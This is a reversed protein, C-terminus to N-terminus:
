SRKRKSARYQLPCLEFHQLMDKGTYKTLAPSSTLAATVICLIFTLDNRAASVEGATIIFEELSGRVGKVEVHERQGMRTCLLDYGLKQDSVDKADWGLDTYHNGVVAMAALEVERNEEWSGFGAGREEAFETSMSSGADLLPHIVEVQLGPGTSNSNQEGKTVILTVPDNPPLQFGGFLLEGFTTPKGTTEKTLNALTYAVHRNARHSITGLYWERAIHFRAEQKGDEPIGLDAAFSKPFNIEYQPKGTMRKDGALEKRENCVFKAPITLPPM